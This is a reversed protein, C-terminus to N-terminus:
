CANCGRCDRSCRGTDGPVLASFVWWQAASDELPAGPCHCCYLAHVASGTGSLMALVGGQQQFSTMCCWALGLPSSGDTGQGRLVRGYCWVNHGTM